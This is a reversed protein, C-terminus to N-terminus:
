AEPGLPSTPRRKALQRNRQAVALDAEHLLRSVEQATARDPAHVRVTVDGSTDRLDGELEPERGGGYVGGAAAGAIAGVVAWIAVRGGVGLDWLPILGILAGIAAGVLAGIAGWVLAGRAQSGAVMGVQVAGTADDYERQQAETLAVRQDGPDGVVIEVDPGLEARMRAVAEDAVDAPLRDILDTGDMRDYPRHAHDAAM